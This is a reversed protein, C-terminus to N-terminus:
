KNIEILRVNFAYAYIPPPPSLPSLGGLFYYLGRM